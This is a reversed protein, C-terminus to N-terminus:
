NDGTDTDAVKVSVKGAAADTTQTKHAASVITTKDNDKEIISQTSTNTNGHIDTVTWTIVTTGVPYVGSADATGTYSNTVSAVGCNDGTAPGAVTVSSKCVCADVTHTQNAASVITPKDNDTVTISQNSTNTNCHIDTVTM